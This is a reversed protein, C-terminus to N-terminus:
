RLCLPLNFSFRPPRVLVLPRTRCVPLLARGARVPRRWPEPATAAGPQRASQGSVVLLPPPVPSLPPPLFLALLPFM